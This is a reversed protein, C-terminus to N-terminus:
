LYSGYLWLIAGAFAVVIATVIEDVVNGLGSVGQDFRINGVLVFPKQLLTYILFTITYSAVGFLFANITLNFQSVKRKAAFRADLAAWIIGPLFILSFQIFTANIDMDM